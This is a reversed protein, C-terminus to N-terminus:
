YEHVIRMQELGQTRTVHLSGMVSALAKGDEASTEAEPNKLAIYRTKQEGRALWVTRFEGSTNTSSAIVATRSTTASICQTSAM